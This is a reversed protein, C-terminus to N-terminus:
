LPGYTLKSHDAFTVVLDGGLNCGDPQVLPGPLPRPIYQRVTDLPRVFKDGPAANSVFSPATPGEPIPVMQLRVIAGHGRSPNVPTTHQSRPGGTCAVVFVCVLGATAVRNM